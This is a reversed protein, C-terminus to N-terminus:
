RLRLCSLPLFLLRPLPSLSYYSLRRQTQTPHGPLKQFTLIADTGSPLIVNLAQSGPVNSPAHNFTQILSISLSLWRFSVTDNGSHIDMLNVLSKSVVSFLCENRM